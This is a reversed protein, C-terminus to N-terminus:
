LHYVLRASTATFHRSVCMQCVIKNVCHSRWSMSCLFIYVIYMYYISVVAEVRRLTWFSTRRGRKWKACSFRELYEVFMTACFYFDCRGCGFHRRLSLSFFCIKILLIKIIKEFRCIDREACVCVYKKIIACSHSM